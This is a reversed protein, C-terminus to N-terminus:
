ATFEVQAPATKAKADQVVAATIPLFEGQLCSQCRRSIARREDEAFARVTGCHSCFLMNVKM